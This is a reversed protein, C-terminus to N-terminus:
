QTVQMAEVYVVINRVALHEYGQRYTNHLIQNWQPMCERGYGGKIDSMVHSADFKGDRVAITAIDPVSRSLLPAAAGNGKGSIGHCSACYAEYLAPGDPPDIRAAQVYVIRSQAALTATVVCVAAGILLLLVFLHVVRRGM